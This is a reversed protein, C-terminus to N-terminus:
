AAQKTKSERLELAQHIEEHLDHNWPEENHELSSYEKYDTLTNKIEEEVEQCDTVAQEIFSLGDLDRDFKLMEFGHEMAGQEEHHGRFNELLKTFDETSLADALHAYKLLQAEKYGLEQLVKSRVHCNCRLYGQLDKWSGLEPLLDKLIQELEDAKKNLANYIPVLAENRTERITSLVEAMLDYLSELGDGTCIRGNSDRTLEFDLDLADVDDVTVSNLLKEIDGLDRQTLQGILYQAEEIIPAVEQEMEELTQLPNLIQQEENSIESAQDTTKNNMQNGLTNKM